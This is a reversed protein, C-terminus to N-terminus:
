YFEGFNRVCNQILKLGLELKLKPAYKGIYKQDHLQLSLSM